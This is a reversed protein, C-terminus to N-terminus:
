NNPYLHLEGLIKLGEVDSLKYYDDFGIGFESTGDFKFVLSNVVGEFDLRSQQSHIYFSVYKGLLDLATTHSVAM